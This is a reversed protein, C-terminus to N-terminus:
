AHPLGSSATVKSRMLKKKRAAYRRPKLGQSVPTDGGSSTETTSPGPLSSGPLASSRPQPVPVFEMYRARCPQSVVPTSKTGRAMACARRLAAAAPAEGRKSTPSTVRRVSRPMPM